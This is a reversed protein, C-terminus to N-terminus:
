SVTFQNDKHNRQVFGCIQLDYHGNKVIAKVNQLGLSELLDKASDDIITIIMLQLGLKFFTDM